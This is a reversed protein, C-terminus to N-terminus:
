IIICFVEFLINSLHLYWWFYFYKNQKEVAFNNYSFIIRHLPIPFPMGHTTKHFFFGSLVEKKFVRKRLDYPAYHVHGKTQCWRFVNCGKKTNKSYGRELSPNLGFFYKIWILTPTQM